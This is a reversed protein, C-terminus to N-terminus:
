FKPKEFSRTRDIIAKNKKDLRRLQSASPNSKKFNTSLLKMTLKSETIDELKFIVTKDELVRNKVLHITYDTNEECDFTAKDYLLDSVRIAVTKPNMKTVIMGNENSIKLTLPKRKKNLFEARIGKISFGKEDLLRLQITDPKASTKSEVRTKPGQYEHTNIVIYEDLMVYTGAGTFVKGFGDNGKISFTIHNGNFSISDTDEFFTGSIDQANMTLSLVIASLTFLIKM